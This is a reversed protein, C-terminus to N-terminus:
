AKKITIVLEDNASVTATVQEGDTFDANTAASGDSFYFSANESLRYTKEDSCVIYLEDGFFITGSVTFNEKATGDAGGFAGEQTAAAQEQRYEAANDFARDSEYLDGGVADNREYYKEGGFEAGLMATEDKTKDLTLPLAIATVTVAIAAAALAVYKLIRTKPVPKKEFASYDLRKAIENFDLEVDVKEDILSLIEDDIKKM